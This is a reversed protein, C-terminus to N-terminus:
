YWIPNSIATGSVSGGVLAHDVHRAGLVEGRQLSGILHRVAVIDAIALKTIKKFDKKFQSAYELSYM